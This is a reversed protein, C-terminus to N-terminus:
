NRRPFYAQTSNHQWLFQHIHYGDSFFTVSGLIPSPSDQTEGYVYIFRNFRFLKRHLGMGEAHLILHGSVGRDDEIWVRSSDTLTYEGIYNEEVFEETAVGHMFRAEAGHKLTDMGSENALVTVGPREAIRGIPVAREPSMGDPTQAPRAQVTEAPAPGTAQRPRPERRAPRKKLTEAGAQKPKAEAKAESKRAPSAAHHKAPPPEPIAPPKEVTAPAAPLPAPEVLDILLLHEEESRPIQRLEISWLLFAHMCVSLALCLWLFGNRRGPGDPLGSGSCCIDKRPHQFPNFEPANM